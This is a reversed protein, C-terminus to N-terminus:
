SDKFFSAADLKEDPTYPRIKEAVYNKCVKVYDKAVAPTYYKFMSTVAGTYYVLLM